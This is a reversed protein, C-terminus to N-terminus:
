FRYSVTAIISRRNGVFCDGFARCPSYHRKDFVNTANLLFSWSQADLGLLADALTYSPTELSGSASISQTEGVYRVGGGLRLALGDSLTLSKVAWLSAQQKPIDSLQEGVEPAFNSRTVEADVYGYSATVNFDHAVEHTAELEVGRSDVEGTQVTNLVNDPDNTPRNTEEIDFGALTILTGPRPQWKVGAEYQRGEQPRFPQQYFDFGVLPEFSESYSIYPSFGAGVDVIIGGRLSTAYDIQVESGEAHSRARDRRVGLVLNVREGYRIQDQLYVGIQYQRLTSEPGFEPVTFNGYTPEYIDIPGADGFATRSRERFGLYDIGAMLRHTFPGTVWGYQLNNDSTFYETRSEIAYANRNVVRDDADIFPDAPNSYVDPYIENFATRARVYRLSSNVRLADSFAHEVLLSAASQRSDLKDFEPEGLFTEDRLRRGPPALLTAVVPLFQQSSATEDDQFLTLLTVSTRESPKWTLSPAIVTRDDPIVDTQMGSDRVVGVVRAAWSASEGIPANLDFQLQSREHSGFQVAVERRDDFRPRKSVLNVVGGTSGQGYLVSSPGRLLEVRELTYVEARPILNYGLLKRMGDLYQAAFFGRVAPQDSRTDLAYAESTVGASYRLTEQMTLVGRDLFQAATIVSIAQPTEILATDTKTATVARTATVVVAELDGDHVTDATTASAFPPLALPIAAALVQGVRLPEGALLSRISLM